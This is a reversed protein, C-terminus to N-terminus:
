AAVLGRREALAAAIVEPRGHRQMSKGLFGLAAKRGRAKTVASELVEGGHGVARWHDHTVGNIKVCVEDLRWRRHRRARMRNVRRSRIEAAFMPGFRNWLYRVTEHSIEINRARPLVEVEPPSLPFRIRLM